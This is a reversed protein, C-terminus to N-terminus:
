LPIEPPLLDVNQLARHVAVVIPHLVESNLPSATVLWAISINKFDGVTNFGCKRLTIFIQTVNRADNDLNSCSAVHWAAQMFALHLTAIDSTIYLPFTSRISSQIAPHVASTSHNSM